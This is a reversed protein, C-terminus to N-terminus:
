RQLRQHLLARSCKGASMSKSVGVLVLLWRRGVRIREASASYNFTCERRLPVKTAADVIGWTGVEAFAALGLREELADRSARLARGIVDVLTTGLEFPNYVIACPAHNRCILRRLPLDNGGTFHSRLAGGDSTWGNM